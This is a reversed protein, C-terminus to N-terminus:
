CPRMQSKKTNSLLDVVSFATDADNTTHIPLNSSQLNSVDKLRASYRVAQALDNRPETMGGVSSGSAGRKSSYNRQREQRMPQATQRMPSLSRLRNAYDFRAMLPEMNPLLDAAVVPKRHAPKSKGALGPQASTIAPSRPTSSISNFANLYDMTNGFSDESSHQPAVATAPPVEARTDM